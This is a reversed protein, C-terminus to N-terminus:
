THDSFYLMFYKYNCLFVDQTNRDSIRADVSITISYSTSNLSIEFIREEKKYSQILLLLEHLM